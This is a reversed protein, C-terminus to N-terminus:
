TTLKVSSSQQFLHRLHLISSNDFHHTKQLYNFIRRINSTSLKKVDFKGGNVISFESNCAICKGVGERRGKGLLQQKGAM